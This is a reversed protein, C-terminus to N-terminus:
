FRSADPHPRARTSQDFHILLWVAWVLSLLVPFAALVSAAYQPHFTKTISGDTMKYHCEVGLPIVTYTSAPHGHRGGEDTYVTGPPRENLCLFVEEANRMMLGSDFQRVVAYWLLSALMSILLAKWQGSV